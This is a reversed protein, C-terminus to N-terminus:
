RKRGIITYNETCIYDDARGMIGGNGYIPYKGNINEVKLQNKGYPRCYSTRM